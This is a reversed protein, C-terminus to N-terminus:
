FLLLILMVISNEGRFFIRSSLWFTIRVQGVPKPRPLSTSSRSSTLTPPGMFETPSSAPSKNVIISNNNNNKVVPTPEPSQPKGDEKTVEDKNKYSRRKMPLPPPSEPADSLIESTAKPPNSATPFESAWDSFLLFSINICVVFHHQCLTVIPRM